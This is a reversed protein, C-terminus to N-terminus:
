MHGLAAYIRDTGDRDDQWVVVTSGHAIALAPRYQNSAGGGTDDIRVNPSWSAGADGSWALFIDNNGERHDQWAVVIRGSTPDSAIIPRWQGSFGLRNQSQLGDGTDDVRVSSSFVSDGPVLTAFAIDSDPRRQQACDDCGARRGAQDTWTVVISGDSSIQIAPDDHLRELGASAGGVRSADDVRLHPGFSDGGDHSVSAFLDWAYNRFDTWAIAVDSGRAAIAPSWRNNVHDALPEPPPFAEADLLRSGETLAGPTPDIRTYALRELGGSLAIWAIHGRGQDDVCLSPVWREEVNLADGISREEFASDWAPARAYRIRPEPDLEQWVVHVAGGRAVGVRPRVQRVGSAAAVLRSAGITGDSSIRAVRIQDIGGRDDQWAIIYGGSPDPAIAPNRQRSGASGDDIRVNSGFAATARTPDIAPQGLDLTASVWSEVYRNERPDGSGPALAAGVTALCTRREFLDGAGCEEGPGDGAVWETVESWGVDDPQGVYRGTDPEKARAKAAIHSQGDFVLDFFNGTLAPLLSARMSARKQVQTWGSQKLVDPSWDEVPTGWSSFAEPQLLLQSDYLELRDLEDVMWAPKSIVIGMPLGAIRVPRVQRLSGYALDLGIVGQELPGEEIPVLYTKKVAGDLEGERAADLDNFVLRGDPAFVFAQNYVNESTAEYACPPQVDGCSKTRAEPDALLAAVVPNTTIRAPAVNAASVVWAHHTIAIERFTEFFSRYLTDTLALMGLRAESLNQRPFRVRYYAAQPQYLVFLGAIAVVSNSVVPELARFPLGRAGMFMAYLASDEPFVFVKEATGTAFGPDADGVLRMLHDRYASYSAADAALHKYGFVVFRLSPAAAPHPATPAVLALALLVPLALHLRRM